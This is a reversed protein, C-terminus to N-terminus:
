MLLGEIVGIRYILVGGIVVASVGVMGMLADHLRTLHRASYGLPFAIILTLLGMGGISGVGFLLLYLVGELPSAVTNLALLSLAASGALGHFLGVLLAKISSAHDHHHEHGHSHNEHGTQGAHSHAHLHTKGDQHRHAHFHVRKKFFRRIVDLGLVVLLAGVALELWLVLQEPMIINLWLVGVGVALLTISHGVGWLIGLRAVSRRNSSRTTLSAVAAIHDAELAHKMGLFFGLMLVSVSM